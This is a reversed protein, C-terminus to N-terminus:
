AHAADESFYGAMRGAMVAGPGLQEREEEVIEKKDHRYFATLQIAALPTEILCSIAERRKVLGRREAEEGGIQELQKALRMAKKSNKRDVIKSVYVDSLFFVAIPKHEKVYKRVIKAMADKGESANSIEPDIFIPIHTGDAHLLMFRMAVMDDERLDQMCDEVFKWGKEILEKMEVQM